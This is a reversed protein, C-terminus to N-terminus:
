GRSVNLALEGAKPCVGEVGLTSIGIDRARKARAATMSSRVVAIDAALAVDSKEQVSRDSSTAEIRM